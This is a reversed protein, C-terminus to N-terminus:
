RLWPAIPSCGRHGPLPMEHSPSASPLVAPTLMAGDNRIWRRGVHRRRRSEVEQSRLEPIANMGTLESAFISSSKM